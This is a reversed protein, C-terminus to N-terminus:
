KYNRGLADLDAGNVNSVNARKANQLEKEATQTQGNANKAAQNTIALNANANTQGGRIGGLQEWVRNISWSECYSMFLGFVALTLLILLCVTALTANSETKESEGFFFGLIAKIIKQIFYFAIMGREDGYNTTHVNKCEYNFRM